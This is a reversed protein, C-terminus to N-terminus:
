YRIKGDEIDQLWEKGPLWGGKEDYPYEEGGKPIPNKDYYKLSLICREWFVVPDDKVHREFGDRMANLLSGYTFTSNIIM